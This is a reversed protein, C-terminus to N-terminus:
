HESYKVFNDSYKSIEFFGGSKKFLDAPMIGAIEMRIQALKHIKAPCVAVSILFEERRRFMTM